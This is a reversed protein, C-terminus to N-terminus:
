EFKLFDDNKCIFLMMHSVYFRIPLFQILKRMGKKCILKLNHDLKHTAKANARIGQEGNETRKLKQYLKRAFGIEDRLGKAPSYFDIKIVKFREERLIDRFERITFMYQYFEGGGRM